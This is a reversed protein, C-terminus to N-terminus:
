DLASMAPNKRMHAAGGTVQDLQPAALEDDDTADHVIISNAQNDTADHVTISDSM